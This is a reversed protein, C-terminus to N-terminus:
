SVLVMPRKVYLYEEDWLLEGTNNCLTKVIIINEIFQNIGSEKNKRFSEMREKIQDEDYNSIVDGIEILKEDVPGKNIVPIKAIGKGIIQSMGAGAKLVHSEIASRHYSELQDYCGSYVDRYRYAYNRLLHIADDLSKEDFSKSLMIELFAAYAFLYLEMRYREFQQQIMDFTQDVNRNLVMSGKKELRDEAEKQYIDSNKRAEEKIAHVRNFNLELYADDDLYNKYNDMIETLVELNKQYRIQKEQKFQELISKKSTNPSKTKNQIALIAIAGLLEKVDIMGKKDELPMHYMGKEATMSDYLEKLISAEHDVTILDDISFRYYTDEDVPEEQINQIQTTKDDM